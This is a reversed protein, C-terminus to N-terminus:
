SAYRITPRDYLVSMYLVVHSPTRETIYLSVGIYMALLQYTSISYAYKGRDHSGESMEM